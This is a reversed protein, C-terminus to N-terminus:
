LIPRCRYCVKVLKHKNMERDSKGRYNPQQNDEGKAQGLLTALPTYVTGSRYHHCRGHVQRSYPWM